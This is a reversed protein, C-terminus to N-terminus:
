YILPCSVQKLQTEHGRFECNCLDLKLIEGVDGIINDISAFDQILKQVIERKEARNVFHNFSEEINKQKM